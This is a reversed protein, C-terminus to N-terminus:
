EHWDYQVCWPRARKAEERNRLTRQSILTNKLKGHQNPMRRYFQFKGAEGKGINYNTINYEAPSPMYKAERM